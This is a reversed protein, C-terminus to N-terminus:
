LLGKNKLFRGRHVLSKIAKVARDPFSVEPIGADDLMFSSMRSELGLWCAAVPKDSDKMIDIVMKATKLPEVMATPCLIVIISDNNKDEVLLNLALEYRDALADGLIDVPNRRSWAAPLDGNLADFTKKELSAITLGQTFVDDAAMVGPGGANTLIAVRDTKAPPQYGLAKACYFLENMSTARYVGYQAFVADYVTDAGAISGTHSSAAQAGAATRGSKAVVIPVREIINEITDRFKKGNTVSEIYIAIVKTRPDDAFYEMLDADDIDSKNGISVFNAFGIREDFSYNIVATCLAGSQSIFSIPGRPPMLDSFSANLNNFTRIIGLCNPGIIRMNNQRAIELIKEELKKGEEDFESFGATIIVLSKVNKQACDKMVAPVFKAPVAIIANDFDEPIDLISKYAPLGGIEDGPKVRANVPYIDGDFGKVTGGKKFLGAKGVGAKKVSGQTLNTIIANGVKGKKNSAGIVAIGNSPEFFNRIEEVKKTLDTM